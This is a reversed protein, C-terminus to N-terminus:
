LVRTTTFAIAAAAAITSLAAAGGETSSPSSPTPAAEVKAVNAKADQVVKQLEQSIITVKPEGECGPIYPYWERDEPPHKPNASDLERPALTYLSTLNRHAVWKSTNWPLADSFDLPEWQIEVGSPNKFVPRNNWIDGEKCYDGNVLKGIAGQAGDIKLYADCAEGDVIPRHSRAVLSALADARKQGREVVTESALLSGLAGAGAMRKPSRRVVAPSGQRAAELAGLVPHAALPGEKRMMHSEAVAGQANIEVVKRQGSHAEPLHSETAATM